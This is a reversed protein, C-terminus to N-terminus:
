SEVLPFFAQMQLNEVAWRDFCWPSCFILERLDAEPTGHRRLRTDPEQTHVEMRLVRLYQKGEPIPDGHGACRHFNLPRRMDEAIKSCRYQHNKLGGGAVFARGCGECDVHSKTSHRDRTGSHWFIRDCNEITCAFVSM